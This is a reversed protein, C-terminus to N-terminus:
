TKRSHNTLHYTFPRPIATKLLAPDLIQEFCCEANNYLKGNLKNKPAENFDMFHLWVITTVPSNSPQICM